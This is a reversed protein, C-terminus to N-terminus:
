RCAADAEVFHPLTSSLSSASAFELNSEMREMPRPPTIEIAIMTQAAAVIWAVPPSILDPASIALASVGRRPLQAVKIKPIPRKAAPIVLVSVAGRAAANADEPIRPHPSSIFFGRKLTKQIMTRANPIKAVQVSPALGVWIMRNACAALASSRGIVPIRRRITEFSSLMRFSYLFLVQNLM